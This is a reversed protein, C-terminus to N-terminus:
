DITEGTVNITIDGIPQGANTDFCQADQGEFWVYLNFYEAAQPALSAIEFKADSSAAIDTTDTATTSNFAAVTEGDTDFLHDTFAAGEKMPAVGNTTTAETAPVLAVRGYKNTLGTVEITVKMSKGGTAVANKVNLQDKYVYNGTAAKISDAKAAFNNKAAADAQYWTTGNASTAPKLIANKQGYDIQSDQWIHDSKSIELESSKVTRVNLGTATTSTSQTFWAFTATGLAIMAVLLMAVSSILARKKTFLQTKM